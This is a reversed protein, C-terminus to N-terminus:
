FLSINWIDCSYRGTIFFITNGKERIQTSWSNNVLVRLQVYDIHSIHPSPEDVNTAVASWCYQTQSM